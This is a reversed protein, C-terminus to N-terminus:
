FIPSWLAIIVIPSRKEFPSRSWSRSRLNSSSRSRSRSRMKRSRVLVKNLTLYLLDVEQLVKCWFKIYSGFWRLADRRVKFTKESFPTMIPIRVLKGFAFHVLEQLLHIFRVTNVIGLFTKHKDFWVWKFSTDSLNLISWRFLILFESKHAFNYLLLCFFHSMRLLYLKNSPGCPCCFISALIPWSIFTTECVSVPQAM